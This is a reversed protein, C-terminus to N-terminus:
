SGVICGPCRSSFLVCVRVSLRQRGTKFADGCLLLLELQNGAQAILKLIRTHSCGAVNEGNVALIGDGQSLSLINSLSVLLM